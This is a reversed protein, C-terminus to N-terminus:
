AWPRSSIRNELGAHHRKSSASRQGQCYQLSVEMTSLQHFQEPKSGGHDGSLLKHGSVQLM